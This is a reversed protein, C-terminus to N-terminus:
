RKACRAGALIAAAPETQGAPDGQSVDSHGQLLAQASTFCRWTSSHAHATEPRDPGVQESVQEPTNRDHDPERFRGQKGSSPAQELTNRTRFRHDINWIYCGTDNPQPTAPGIGKACSTRGRAGCCRDAMSCGGSCM